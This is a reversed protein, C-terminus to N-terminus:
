EVIVKYSVIANKAAIYKEIYTTGKSLGQLTNNAISATVGDAFVFRDDGQCHLSEGVSLTLSEPQLRYYIFDGTNTMVELADVSMGVIFWTYKRRYGVGNSQLTLLANHRIYWGYTANDLGFSFYNDYGTYTNDSNFTLLEYYGAVTDGWFWSGVLGSSETDNENVFTVSDIMNIPVDSHNGDKHHIRMHTQAFAATCNITLILIFLLRDM